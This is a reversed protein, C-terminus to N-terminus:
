ITLVSYVKNKGPNNNDDGINDFYYYYYYFEKEITFVLLFKLMLM